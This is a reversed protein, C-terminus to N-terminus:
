QPPEGPLKAVHRALLAQNDVIGTTMVWDDVALDAFTIPTCTHPATKACFRTDNNVVITASEGPDIGLSAPRARRVLVTFDSAGKATVKGLIAFRQPPVEANIVVTRAFHNQHTRLGNARVVQGVELDTFAAPVLGTDTREWFKTHDRVTVTVSTPPAGHAPMARYVSVTVQFTRATTDIASVTGWLNFQAPHAVPQPATDAAFAPVATLALLAVIFLMAFRRKM